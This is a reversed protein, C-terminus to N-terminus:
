LCLSSTDPCLPGSVRSPRLSRSTLGPGEMGEGTRVLRTVKTPDKVEAKFEM